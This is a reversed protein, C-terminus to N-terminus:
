PQARSTVASLEHPRSMFMAHPAAAGRTDASTRVLEGVFAYGRGPVNVIYRAGGQGDGLARRLRSAHVRLSTEEVITDPWVRAELENRSVVEGAREVLAVLLDLARSGLRVPVGAELLLRRRPQLTFRNFMLIADHDNLHTM